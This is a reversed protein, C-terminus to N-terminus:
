HSKDKKIKKFVAKLSKFEKEEKAEKEIKKQVEEPLKSWIKKLKKLSPDLIENWFGVPELIEKIKSFDYNARIQRERQLYGEESFIREIGKKDCYKNIEERLEKIKKLDNEQRKKLILYENVLDVIQKDDLTLDQYLHKWMPCIKKYVCFDCLSSVFPPFKKQEILSIVKLAKQKAKEILEQNKQTSIKESHKLFYLSLKLPSEKFKPWNQEFGLAYIGLQLNNDVMNQSPMKRSTKYDIIEFYNDSIKDIRDIIGILTHEKAEPHSSEKIKAFFKKELDVILFNKPNNRKYYEKLIRIGEEFYANKEEESQWDIDKANEWLEKFYDLLQTLNPPFPTPQHLFKLASHILTGFIQEKSKKAKIKEVESFYYKKPCNLYLEISSYSIQM